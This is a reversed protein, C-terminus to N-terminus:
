CPIVQQLLLFSPSVVALTPRGKGPARGFGRREAEREAWGGGGECCCSDGTPCSRVGIPMVRLHRIPLGLLMKGHKCWRGSSLSEGGCPQSSCINPLITFLPLPAMTSSRPVSCSWFCPCLRRTHSSPSEQTGRASHSSVVRSCGCLRM